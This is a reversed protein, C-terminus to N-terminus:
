DPSDIDVSSWEIDFPEPGYFFCSDTSILYKLFGVMAFCVFAVMRPAFFGIVIIPESCKIAGLFCPQIVYTDTCEHTQVVPTEFYHREYAMGIM